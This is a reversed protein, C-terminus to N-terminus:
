VYFQERIADVMAFHRRNPVDVMVVIGRGLEYLKGETAEAHEFDALSMRRAHDAPTLKVTTEAMPGEPITRDDAPGWCLLPSPPRSSPSPVRLTAGRGM